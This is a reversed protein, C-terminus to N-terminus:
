SMVELGGPVISHSYDLKSDRTHNQFAQLLECECIEFHCHRRQFHNLDANEIKQLCNAAFQIIALRISNNDLFIPAIATFNGITHHCFCFLSNM